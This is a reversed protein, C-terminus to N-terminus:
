PKSSKNRFEEKRQRHSANERWWSSRMHGRGTWIWKLGWKSKGQRCLEPFSLHSHSIGKGKRRGEGGREDRREGEAGRWKGREKKKSKLATHDKTVMNAHPNSTYWIPALTPVYRDRDTDRLMLRSSSASNCKGTTVMQLWFTNRHAWYKLKLSNDNM